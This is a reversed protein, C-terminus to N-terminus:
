NQFDWNSSNIFCYNIFRITLIYVNQKTYYVKAKPYYTLDLMKYIFDM